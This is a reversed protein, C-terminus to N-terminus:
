FADNGAMMGNLQADFAVKGTLTGDERGILGQVDTIFRRRGAKIERCLMFLTDGPFVAARFAVNDIRLFLVISPRGVRALFAFASLQAATEVMLVGPFTPKGPFHGRCWFDTEHLHKVGVSRTWGADHWAVGDLMSFEHRHPLLKEIDIRVLVKSGLDIGALDFLVGKSAIPSTSSETGGAQTQTM